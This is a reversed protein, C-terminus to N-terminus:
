LGLIDPCIVGEGFNDRIIQRILIPRWEDHRVQGFMLRVMALQMRVAACEGGLNFPFGGKLHCWDHWARFAHYTPRDFECDETMHDTVLMRGTEAVHAALEEYSNPAHPGTDFGAPFLRLAITNVADCFASHSM